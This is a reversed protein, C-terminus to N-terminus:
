RHLQDWRQFRDSRGAKRSNAVHPRQTRRLQKLTDPTGAMTPLSQPSATSVRRLKKTVLVKLFRSELKLHNVRKDNVRVLPEENMEIARQEPSDICFLM